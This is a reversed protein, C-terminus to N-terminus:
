NPKKKAAAPRGMSGNPNEQIRGTKSRLGRKQAKSERPNGQIREHSDLSKLPNRPKLPSFKEGGKETSVSAGSRSEVISGHPLAPDNM